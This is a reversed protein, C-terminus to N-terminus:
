FNLIWVLFFNYILVMAFYKKWQEENLEKSKGLEHLLERFEHIDIFGNQDKDLRNFIEKANGSM